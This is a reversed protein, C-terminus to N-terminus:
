IIKNEIYKRKISFTNNMYYLDVAKTYLMDYEENFLCWESCFTYKKWLIYKIVPLNPQIRCYSCHNSTYSNSKHKKLSEKLVIQMKPTHEVNYEYIM